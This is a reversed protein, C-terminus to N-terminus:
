YRKQNHVRTDESVNEPTLLEQVELALSQVHQEQDRFLQPQTAALEMKRIMVRARRIPMEKTTYLELLIDILSLAAQPGEERHMTNDLSLLAYEMLAAVSTLPVKADLLRHAFDKEQAKQFLLLNFTAIEFAMKSMSVVDSIKGDLKAEEQEEFAESISKQAAKDSILMWCAADISTLGSMYAEYSLRYEGSFRYSAALHEWKKAVGEPKKLDCESGDEIAKAKVSEYLMLSEQACESASKLFRVALPLKKDNYLQGGVYYWSSSLMRMKECRVTDNVNEMKAKTSHLITDCRSLFTASTDHTTGDSSVFLRNALSRLIYIYDDLVAEDDEVQGKSTSELYQEYHQCISLLLADVNGGVEVKKQDLIKLSRRSLQDLVKFMKRLTEDRALPTLHMGAEIEAQAAKTQDERSSQDITKDALISDLMVIAPSLRACMQTVLRDVEDSSMEEGSSVKDDGRALLSAVHDIAHVAGTRQALQIWVECFKLFGKGQLDCKPNKAEKGMQEARRVLDRFVDDVASFALRKAEASSDKDSLKSRLYSSGVRSARDWYAEQDLDSVCLLFDLSVKRCQLILDYDKWDPNRGLRSLHKTITREISYAHRDASETSDKDTTTAQIYRLWSMPGDSHHLAADLLKGIRSTPADLLTCSLSLAQVELILDRTKTSLQNTSPIIFGFTISSEESTYKAHIQKRM